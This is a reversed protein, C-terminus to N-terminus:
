RRSTPSTCGPRREAAGYGGYDARGRRQRVDAHAPPAHRHARGDGAPPHATGQAVNGALLDPLRGTGTAINYALSLLFSTKGVAPRAGILTLEDGHLGGTIEDLDRYAPRIGLASQEGAMVRQMKDYYADISVSLPEFVDQATTSMGIQRLLALADAM